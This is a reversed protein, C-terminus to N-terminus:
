LLEKITNAFQEKLDKPFNLVKCYDYIKHRYLRWKLNQYQPFGKMFDVLYFFDIPCVFKKGIFDNLVKSGSVDERLILSLQKKTEIDQYLNKISPNFYHYKWKAYEQKTKELPVEKFYTDNWVLMCGLIKPYEYHKDLWFYENYISECPIRFDMKEINEKQKKSTTKSLFKWIGILYGVVNM